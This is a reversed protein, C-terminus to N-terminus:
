LPSKLTIDLNMGGFRTYSTQPIKLLLKGELELSCGFAVAIAYITKLTEQVGGAL